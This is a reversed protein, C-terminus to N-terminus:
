RHGRETGTGSPEIEAIDALVEPPHEEPMVSEYAAEISGGPGILYSNRPTIERETGRILRTERCDYADAVAGDTDSLLTFPLGEDDAFEAIRDVPDPSVGVVAVDHDQVTGHRDRFGWAETEGESRHGIRARGHVQSGGPTISDATVRHLYDGGRPPSNRWSRVASLILGQEGAHDDRNISSRRYGVV